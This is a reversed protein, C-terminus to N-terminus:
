ADLSLAVFQDTIMVTRQKCKSAFLLLCYCVAQNAPRRSLPVYLVVGGSPRLLIRAEGGGCVVCVCVCAGEREEGDGQTSGLVM